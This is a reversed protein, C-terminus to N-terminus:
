TKRRPWIPIKGLIHFGLGVLFLVGLVAFIPLAGIFLLGAFFWRVLLGLRIPGELPPELTQAGGHDIDSFWCMLLVVCVISGFTVEAIIDAM